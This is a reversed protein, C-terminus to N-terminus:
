PNSTISNNTGKRRLWFDNEAQTSQSCGPRAEGVASLEKLETGGERSQEFICEPTCVIMLDM